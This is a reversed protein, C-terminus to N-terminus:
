RRNAVGTLSDTSAEARLQGNLRAHAETLVLTAVLGILWPLLFHGPTAVLAGASAAGAALLAHARAAPLSLFYAAYLGIGILVPGLGVIGAAPGGTPSCASM